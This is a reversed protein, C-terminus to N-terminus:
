EKSVSLSTSCRRISRTLRPINRSFTRGFAVAFTLKGTSEATALEALVQEIVQRLSGDFEVDVGFESAFADALLRLTQRSVSQPLMKLNAIATGALGIAQGDDASRGQAAITVGYIALGLPFVVAAFGAMTDQVLGVASVVCALAATVLVAVGSWLALKM